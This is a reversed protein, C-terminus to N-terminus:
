NGNVRRRREVVRVYVAKYSDLMRELSFESARALGRQVMRDRLESSSLARVIARALLGPQRSPVMIGVGGIVERLGQIDSCVVPVGAALGQLAALGFGENLSPQVYLDSWRMLRDVDTRPGLFHVRDSVSLGAALDKLKGLLPGVGVISLHAAPINTLARIATDHDKVAVLAGVSLIAPRRSLFPDEGSRADIRPVVGAQIGNFVVSLKNPDMAVWNQLAVQSGASVCTVADFQAYM